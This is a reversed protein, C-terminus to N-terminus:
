HMELPLRTYVLWHRVKFTQGLVKHWQPVVVDTFWRSFVDPSPRANIAVLDLEHVASYSNRDLGALAFDGMSPRVMWSRVFELDHSTPGEVKSLLIMQSLSKDLSGV